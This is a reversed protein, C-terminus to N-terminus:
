PPILNPSNRMIRQTPAERAVLSDLKKSRREAKCFLLNGVTPTKTGNARSGCEIPRAAALLHEAPLFNAYRRKIEVSQWGGM